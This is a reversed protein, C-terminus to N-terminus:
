KNNFYVDNKVTYYYSYDILLLLPSLNSLPHTSYVTTIFVWGRIVIEGRYIISQDNTRVFLVAKKVFLNGFLPFHTNPQKETLYQNKKFFLHM